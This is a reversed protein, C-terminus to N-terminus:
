RVRRALLAGIWVSAIATALLGGWAQNIIMAEYSRASDYSASSGCGGCSAAWVLFPGVSVAWLAIFVATMAAPLWRLRVSAIGALLCGAVVVAVRLWYETIDSAGAFGWETGYYVQNWFQRYGDM